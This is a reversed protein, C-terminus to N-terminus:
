FFRPNIEQTRDRNFRAQLFVEHTGGFAGRLEPQAVQYAYGFGWERWGYASKERIRYGMDLSWANNSRWAGGVRFSEAFILRMGADAQWVGQEPVRIMALPRLAFSPGIDIRAAGVANYRRDDALDQAAAGVMWHANYYFIGAGADWDWRDAPQIDFAPDGSLTADLNAFDAEELVAGASLGLSLTGRQGVVRWAFQGRLATRSLPGLRDHDLTGGLALRPNWLPAHVSIAATSPGDPVETWQRRYFAGISTADHSGAAAPNWVLINDTFAQWTQPAQAFLASPLCIALCCCYRAFLFRNM